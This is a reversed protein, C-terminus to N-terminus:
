VYFLKMVPQAICQVQYASKAIVERFIVVLIITFNIRVCSMIFQLRWRRM